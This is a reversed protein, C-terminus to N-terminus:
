SYDHWIILLTSHLLYENTIVCKWWVPLLTASLRSYDRLVSYLASSIRNYQAASIINYQLGGSLTSRLLFLLYRTITEGSLTFRCHFLAKFYKGSELDAEHERSGQIPRNLVNELPDIDPTNSVKRSMSPSFEIARAENRFIGTGDAKTRRHVVVTFYRRSEPYLTTSGALIEFQDASFTKLHTLM